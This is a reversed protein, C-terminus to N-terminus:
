PTPNLGPARTVDTTGTRLYDLMAATVAPNLSGVTQGHGPGDVTLVHADMAQALEGHLHYPTQPDSTGQIMLPRVDLQSGDVPQTGSTPAAGSCALGSSFYSSYADFIDGTVLSSWAARPVELYNPAVANENCMVLRQMTTSNAVALQTYEDMDSESVDPVPEQGAIAAALNPWTSPQPITARTINLLPSMAQNSGPNLLQTALGQLAVGTPAVTNMVDAGGQGAWSFAPPVDGVRAPPPAVTPNTGTEAVIRNSWAQYVALPTEGLGYTENNEATWTFFDHLTNIYGPGQSAMVGNWGLSPAMASDLVVRDTHSPYRTAYVSGLYTGYSLGLISIEDEGLARRVWEWDEATNDTTLSATYGPTALECSDRIFAGAQTLMRFEDYGPAPTTCDVPTSGLLGRPQVAVLDWENYLEEPWNMATNGFFSYADGGPGGANGFLVGRVNSQDRAPVKIFGVSIEGAAPDSHYMPVQVNGCQATSIDVQPPCEEWTIQPAEQATALPALVGSAMVATASLTALVSNRVRNKVSVM